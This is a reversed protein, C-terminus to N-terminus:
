LDCKKSVQDCVWLSAWFRGLVLNQGCKWCTPLCTWPSRKQNAVLDRSSNSRDFKAKIPQNYNNRVNL